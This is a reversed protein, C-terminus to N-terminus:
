AEQPFGAGRLLHSFCDAYRLLVSFPITKERSLHDMVVAMLGGIHLDLESDTSDIKSMVSLQRRCDSIFDELPEGRVAAMLKVPGSMCENPCFESTAVMGEQYPIEVVLTKKENRLDTDFNLKLTEM